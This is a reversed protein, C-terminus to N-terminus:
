QIEVNRIIKEIRTGPKRWHHLVPDTSLEQTTRWEEGVRKLVIPMLFDDTAATNRYLIIVFEGTDIRKRLEFVRGRFAREWAAIWFARDRKEARDIEAMRELSEKTWLRTWGDYDLSQMASIHAMATGEATQTSAAERREGTVQVPPLYERVAYEYITELVIRGKEAPSMRFREEASELGAGVALCMVTVIAAPAQRM